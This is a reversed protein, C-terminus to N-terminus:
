YDCDAFMNEPSLTVCQFHNGKDNKLQQSKEKGDCVYKWSQAGSGSLGSVVLVSDKGPFIHLGKWTEVVNVSEGQALTNWLLGFSISRIMVALQLGLESDLHILITNSYHFEAM